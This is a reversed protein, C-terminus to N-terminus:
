GAGGARFTTALLAVGAGVIAAVVYQPVVRLALRAVLSEITGVGVALLLVLVVNAVLTPGPTARGVLPHAAEPLTSRNLSRLPPFSGSGLQYIREPRTLDKLRHAGLDVIGDERALLDRTAQSLLIQGGHGAAAIRAARHVDMGVYGAKTLLPEGTHIGIRIRIRIAHEALAAQAAQAAAAADAARAFAVFFSDGQTDIEVGDNSEFAARLESRHAALEAAYAEPGVEDLLSTSGEADSFLFTVTGSPRELM